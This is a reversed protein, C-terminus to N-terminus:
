KTSYGYRELILKAEDSFLFDYFKKANEENSKNKLLLAGQEIKGYNEQAIEIWKGENKMQPSLVVSKATFGVEASRSHIYRNVVSISEGYVFKPRLSDYIGSKRLYEETARGYPATQPNAIAIHKVNPDLLNELTLNISNNLTWLVLNGYAYIKPKEDAFGKNFLTNPYKMDASVFIHFPAGAEIQATLKGSSSTLIESEIGTNEKFKEALDNMAFQMNAATAIRIKDVRKEACSSFLFAILFFFYIGTKYSLTHNKM